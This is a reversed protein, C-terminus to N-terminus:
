LFDVRAQHHQADRAIPLRPGISVHGPKADNTLGHPTQPVKRSLRAAHRHTHAHRNAVGQGGQVAHDTNQHREVVAFHMSASALHNIHGQM